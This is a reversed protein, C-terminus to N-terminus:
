SKLSLTSVLKCRDCKFDYFGHLQKQLGWEKNCGPCRRSLEDGKIKKYNYLFYYTPVSTLGEMKKCIERGQRSLASTIEQM